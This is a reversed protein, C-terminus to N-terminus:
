PKETPKMFDFPTQLQYLGDKFTGQLLMVKTDNDKVFCYDSMFEVIVNNDKTFKSISLM